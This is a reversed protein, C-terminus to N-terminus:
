GLKREVESDAVVVIWWWLCEAAELIEMGGTREPEGVPEAGPDLDDVPRDDIVALHAM